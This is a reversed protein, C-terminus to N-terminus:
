RYQTIFDRVRRLERREFAALAEGTRVFPVLGLQRMGEQFAPTRGLAEMRTALERLRPEPMRAGAYLSFWSDAQISTLGFDRLLPLDPFFMCPENAMVAVPLVRGSAAMQRASFEDVVAIHAQRSMLANAIDAMGRYPILDLSRGLIKQLAVGFMQTLGLPGATAFRIPEADRPPPGKRQLLGRADFDAVAVLLYRQLGVTAVTRLDKEPDFTLLDPQLMATLTQLGPGALTVVADPRTSNLLRQAAILGNAGSANEVVTPLDGSDGLLRAVLRAVADNGAGPPNPVIITLGATRAGLVQARAPLVLGALASALLGQIARRRKLFYSHM